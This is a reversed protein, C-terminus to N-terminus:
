PAPSSAAPASTAGATGMWIGGAGSGEVAITPRAVFEGLDAALSATRLHALVYDPLLRALSVAAPVDTGGARGVQALHFLRLVFDDSVADRARLSELHIAPPLGADALPAFGTAFLERWHARAWPQAARLLTLPNELVLALPRRLAHVATAPGVALWNAFNVRSADRNPEALGRGDDQMLQRHLMIELQGSALSTVGRAHSSLVAFAARQDELLANSLSPYYNEPIAADRRERRRLEFGNDTYFVRDTDLDTSYRVVLERNADAAVSQELEVIRRDDLAAAPGPADFLRVVSRLAGYVVHAQCVLAGCVHRLVVAPPRYPSAEAGTRFIYAGDQNSSYSLFEQRVALKVPAPAPADAGDGDGGLADISALLGDALRAVFHASRLEIDPLKTVSKYMVGHLGEGDGAGPARGPAAGLLYVLSRALPAPKDAAVVFYTAMGAPPVSARFWLRFQADRPEVAEPGFDAARPAELTEDWLPELQISVPTGDADLVAVSRSAVRLAVTESRQWALANHIVVPFSEGPALTDVALAEATGLVHMHAASRAAHEVLADPRLLSLSAMQATMSHLRDRSQSLRASYDNVVAERATGTVGDHHQVLATQRRAYRLTDHADLWVDDALSGALGSRLRLRAFSHMLEGTRLVAETRRALQKLAPRTTYYGTWFSNGNDAYPFFDGMFLPPFTIAKAKAEAFVADFYDSLTAFRITVDTEHSNIYEILRQMNSFQYEANKFKFDDGFAVLLNSTRYSRARSRLESLLQNARSAEQGPSVPSAGEEWDFGQPASYHTHLVHTFIDSAAGLSDPSGRWLFEMGRSAKLANKTEYHIRNIVLAEFGMASFMIPSAASHGFPDIQYAFRPRVGFNTRLYEHGETVQNIVSVYNSDAEDAQVWGGEVFEFQGSSVLRQLTARVESSQM